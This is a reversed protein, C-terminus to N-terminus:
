IGPNRFSLIPYLVTSVAAALLFLALRAYLVSRQSSARAYAAPPVTPIWVFLFAAFGLGIAAGNPLQQEFMARVVIMLVLGALWRLTLNAVSPTQMIVEPTVSSGARSRWGARLKVRERKV